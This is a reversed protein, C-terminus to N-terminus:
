GALQYAKILFFLRTDFFDVGSYHIFFFAGL